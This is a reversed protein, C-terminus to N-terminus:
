EGSFKAATDDYLKQGKALAADLAPKVDQQWVDASADKAQVLKAKAEALIKAMEDKAKQLDAKAEDTAPAAKAQLEEWKTELGALTDQGAQVAKDKSQTLFEGTAKTADVVATGTAKAADGVATGTAKTADVVATGTAEAADGVANGTAEAAKGVANGTAEAADGTAQGASKTADSANGAATKKECATLGLTLAVVAVFTILRKSM